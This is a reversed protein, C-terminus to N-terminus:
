LFTGFQVSPVPRYQELVRSTVNIGIFYKAARGVIYDAGFGIFPYVLLDTGVNWYFNLKGANVGDGIYRKYGIGLGPSIGILSRPNGGANAKVKGIVVTADYAVVTKSQGYAVGSFLTLVLITLLTKRM